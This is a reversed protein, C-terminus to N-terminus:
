LYAPFVKRWVRISTMPEAPFEFSARNIGQQDLAAANEFSIHMEYFGNIQTHSSLIARALSALARMRSLLFIYVYSNSLAM